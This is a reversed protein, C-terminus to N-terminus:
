FGAGVRARIDNEVQVVGGAFRAERGARYAQGSTTVLGTLRVVSDQTEVGIRGEIHQMARLRAMVDNQIREDVANRKHEIVTIGSEGFRADEVQYVPDQAVASVAVAALAAIALHRFRIKQNM